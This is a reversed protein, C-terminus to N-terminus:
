KLGDMDHDFLWFSEFAGIAQMCGWDCDIYGRLHHGDSQFFGVGQAAVTLSLTVRQGDLTKGRLLSIYQLFISLNDLQELRNLLAFSPAIQNPKISLILTEKHPAPSLFFTLFM